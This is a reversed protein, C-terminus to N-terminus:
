PTPTVWRYRSLTGDVCVNGDLTLERQQVQYAYTQGGPQTATGFQVFRLPQPLNTCFGTATTPRFRYQQQLQGNLYIRVTSDAAFEITEPPLTANPVMGGSRSVLEWRGILGTPDTPPMDPPNASHCSGLTLLCAFVPISAPLRM